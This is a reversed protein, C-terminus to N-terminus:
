PGPPLGSAEPHDTPQNSDFYSLSVQRRHKYDKSMWHHLKLDDRLPALNVTFPTSFGLTALLASIACCNALEDPTNAVDRGTSCTQLGPIQSFGLDCHAGARRSPLLGSAHASRGFARLNVAYDNGGAGDFSPPASTNFAPGSTARRFISAVPATFTQISAGIPLRSQFRSYTGGGTVTFNRNV